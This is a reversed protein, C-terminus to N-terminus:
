ELLEDCSRTRVLGVGERVIWDGRLDTSEPNPPGSTGPITDPARRLRSRGPREGGSALEITRSHVPEGITICRGEVLTAGWHHISIVEIDDRELAVRSRQEFDTVLTYVVRPPDVAVFVSGNIAHFVDGEQAEDFYGVHWLDGWFEAELLVVDDTLADVSIPPTCEYSELECFTVYDRARAALRDTFKVIELDRVTDLWAPPEIPRPTPGDEERNEATYHRRTSADGRSDFQLIVYGGEVFLQARDASTPVPAGTAEIRLLVCRPADPREETCVITGNRHRAATGFASDAPEPRARTIWAVGAAQLEGGLTALVRAYEPLMSPDVSPPITVAPPAEAVPADVIPADAVPEEATPEVSEHEAAPAAPVAPSSGCALLCSGWFLRVLLGM